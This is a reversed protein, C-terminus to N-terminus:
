VPRTHRQKRRPVHLRTYMAATTLCVRGQCHNNYLQHRYASQQKASPTATCSCAAQEWAAQTAAQTRGLLGGSGATAQTIYFPPRSGALKADRDAAFMGAHISLRKYSIARSASDGRVAKATYGASVCRGEIEVACHTVTCNASV